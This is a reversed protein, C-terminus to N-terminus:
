DRGDRSSERDLIRRSLLGATMTAASLRYIRPYVFRARGVSRPLYANERYFEVRSARSRTNLRHMM